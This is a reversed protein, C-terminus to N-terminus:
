LSTIYKNTKKNKSACTVRDFSRSQTSNQITQLQVRPSSHRHRAADHDPLCILSHSRRQHQHDEDQVGHSVNRALLTRQRQMRSVTIKVELNPGNKPYTVEENSIMVNLDRKVGTFLESAGSAKTQHRQKYNWARHRSVSEAGSTLFPELGPIQHSLYTTTPPESGRESLEFRHLLM